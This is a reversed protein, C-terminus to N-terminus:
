ATSLHPIYPNTTAQILASHFACQLGSLLKHRKTGMTSEADPVTFVVLLDPIVTLMDITLWGRAYREAIRWRSTVELGNEDM